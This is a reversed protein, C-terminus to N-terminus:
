EQKSQKLENKYMWKYGGATKRIAHGKCISTIHSKNAGTTKSAELISPYEHLMEDTDKDLQYVPRHMIKPNTGKNANLLNTRWDVLQINEWTYPKTNDLRDVSPKLMTEYDSNKWIGYLKLFTPDEEFRDRFEELSYLPPTHERRISKQIAGGYMVVLLGKISRRYKQQRTRESM